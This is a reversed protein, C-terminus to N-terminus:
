IGKKIGPNILRLSNKKTRNMQKSINQTKVGRKKRLTLIIAGVMAILLIFGAMQFLYFYETYLVSGIHEVNSLAQDKGKFQITKKQFFDERNKIFFVTEIAIAVAVLLVTYKFPKNSRWLSSPVINIMMIVFLFLVAVAGVYVIVMLMAIFEAGLLIFLGASSIFSLILFLISYIPNKVSIAVTASLVLFTSLVYFIIGLSNGGGVFSIVESL